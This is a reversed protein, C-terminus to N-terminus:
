MPAPRGGSAVRRDPEQNRRDHPTRKNSQAAFRASEFPRGLKRVGCTRPALAYNSSSQLETAVADASEGLYLLLRAFAPADLVDALV